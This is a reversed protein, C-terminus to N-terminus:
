CIPWTHKIRADSAALHEMYRVHLRCRCRPRDAVPRSGTSSRVWIIADDPRQPTSQRDM